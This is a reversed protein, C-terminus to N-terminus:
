VVDDMVDAQVQLKLLKEFSIKPELRLRHMFYAAHTMPEAASMGGPTHPIDSQNFLEIGQVRWYGGLELKLEPGAHASASAFVLAYVFGLGGAFRKM